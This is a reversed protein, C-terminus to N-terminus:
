KRAIGLLSNEEAGANSNETKAPSSFPNEFAEDSSDDNELFINVTAPITNASVFDEVKELIDREEKSQTPEKQTLWITRLVNISLSSNDENLAEKLLELITRKQASDGETYLDTIIRFLLFKENAFGSFNINSFKIGHVLALALLYLKHELLLQTNRFINDVCDKQTTIQKSKIKEIFQDRLVPSDRRTEEYRKAEAARDSASRYAMRDLALGSSTATNRM